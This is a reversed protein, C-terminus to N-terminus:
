LNFFSSEDIIGDQQLAVIRQLKENFHDKQSEPYGKPYTTASAMMLLFPLRM